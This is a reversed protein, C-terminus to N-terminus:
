RDRRGDATGGSEAPSGTGTAAGAVDEASVPGEVAAEPPRGAAIARRGSPLALTLVSWGLMLAGGVILLSQVSWVDALPGFVAMGIPMALAMAIGLLGFVRGQREAPVREQLLTFIPTSLFAVAFGGVLMLAFFAWMGIPLGMVITAVSVAGAAGFVLLVRNARAAFVAITAGGLLMGASFALENVTLKWVEDGFTRVVLLPTLTSPAAALLMVVAFVALVWRVLPESAAYRVGERLDAFYAPPQDGTRDGARAVRRVPVIAVLTIGIAATIVDIFFIPVISSAAFIAGALAPAVLMMGSQIGGNIGNIRMLRDEPVIQPLLASVAPLQVGAGASRIALTLYILWLSDVGSAMLLALALTTAAIVADAGNILWKRNLRDAWVGGFVSVVAQPVFAFVTTLAMVTGSQTRLTVYWLVAYQVLMSGLLTVTQGLLFVTIRRRWRAGGPPAPSSSAPASASVAADESGADAGSSSAVSSAVGVVPSTDAPTQLM